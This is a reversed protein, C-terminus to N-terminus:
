FDGGTHEEGKGVEAPGNRLRVEVITVEENCLGVCADEVVDTWKVYESTRKVDTSRDANAIRGPEKSRKDKGEM